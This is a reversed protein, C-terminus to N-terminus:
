RVRRGKWSVRGTLHSVASDLQLVAGLLFSLPAALSIPLPLGAVRDTGLKLAYLTLLLWPSFLPALVFTATFYTYLLAFRLPTGGLILYANKRFGRWADRFDRYMYISVERQVDVLVPVVGRKKLYRGIQVDELVEDPLAEHPEFRHYTAADLLWCQGNLAGLSPAPLRRVLPWPLGVLVVHPVLSVLLMGGGRLRTLGTMVSAPPLAAFREVLRQLAGADRLEADADLFLYYRGTAHRTAQYLAHVKGVWGPPPGNGRLGRVRANGAEQIVDWTGDESGDDYVIVEFDPYSQAALSPLLRRLNAEENRAPILVSLRPRAAPATRRRSARLYLVNAGLVGLLGVHVLALLLTM